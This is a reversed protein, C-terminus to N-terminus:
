MKQIDSKLRSTRALKYKLALVEHKGLSKKGSLLLEDGHHLEILKVSHDSLNKQPFGFPFHLRHKEKIQQDLPPLERLDSSLM